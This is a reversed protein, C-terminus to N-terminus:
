DKKALEDNTFLVTTSLTAGIFLAVISVAVLHAILACVSVLGSLVGLTLVIIRERRPRPTRQRRNAYTGTVTALLAGIGGAILGGALAMTQGRDTHDRLTSPDTLNVGLM